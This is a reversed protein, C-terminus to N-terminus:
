QGEGEPYFKDHLKDFASSNAFRWDNLKQAHKQMRKAPLEFPYDFEDRDQGYDKPRLDFRVIEFWPLHDANETDQQHQELADVLDSIAREACDPQSM